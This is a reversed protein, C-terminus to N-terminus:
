SLYREVESVVDARPVPRQVAVDDRLPRLTVIGDALENSGVILAVRAGSRDAAKMQSKMSRNDYAREARVGAAQLEACLRLAELGGTTDVVFVDAVAPPPGFVGEADCAMLIRDVGLGFGIGPVDDGGLAAVLGDYRGGGGIANQAADLADAAFEFLTFRYYDLGRVLRPDIEFPIGLATLGAQVSAFHAAAEPSLFDLMSPAGAVVRIDSDRKSDLVRMPNIELTLRGEDSLQDARERLFASLADLYRARCSTDGLSNLILRVRRLGIAEYFRWGLAIVEVDTMPDTTGFVEVDVQNFQRYRGKQPKEYRFVSGEAWVKAPLSLSHQVLARVIGATLEPRLCIRRGGKDDFDYMQKTVIDTSEGVRLFVGIDEFVPTRIEGFGSRAAEAAFLDILARWRASEPDFIDRTGTAAQFQSV